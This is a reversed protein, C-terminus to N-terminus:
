PVQQLVLQYIDNVRTLWVNYYETDQLADIFNSYIYYQETASQVYMEVYAQEDSSDVNEYGLMFNLKITQGSTNSFQMIQTYENPNRFWLRTLMDGSISFGDEWKVWSGNATLDVEKDDIYTPPSPNSTGEILVINSTLTICGEDCNNAVEVLTFLDPRSYEVTIQIKGTTVITNNITTAILEIFYTTNNEFGTFTYSGSYPSTGDVVYNVGSTSIQIGTSNYLNMVYSNIKEGETQTYSFAFSFSANQIINSVPLNTFSLVPTSYCYFQIPVSTPSANDEADYVVLEANYYTGNTLEDASVIHEYKFTEQKEQYIIQNDTQRRITLQNATIQASSSQVTFTFTYPQTADFAPVPLLTPKTLAM